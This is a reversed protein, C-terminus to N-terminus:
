DVATYTAMLSKAKEETILDPKFCLKLGSSAFSLLVYYTKGEEFNVAKTCATWCILGCPYSETGAKMEYTGPKLHVRAYTARRLQVLKNEELYVPTAVGSGQSVDERFVYVDATPESLNMVRLPHTYIKSACGSLSLAVMGVFAVLFRSNLNM